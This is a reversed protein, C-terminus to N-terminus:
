NSIKHQLKKFYIRFIASSIKKKSLDELVKDNLNVGLDLLIRNWTSDNSLAWLINKKEKFSLHSNKGFLTRIGHSLMYYSYNSIQIESFINKGYENELFDILTHLKSFYNVDFSKTMSTPIQRYHYLSDDILVVRKSRYIAPFVGAVDEGMNVYSPVKMVFEYLVDRRFLKNWYVPYIGFEFPGNGPFIQQWLELNVDYMGPKIKNKKSLGGNPYDATFNCIAIDSSSETLACYLRELYDASIWDDSDVFAVYEGDAKEIGTKRTQVLGKNVQHIVRIKSDSKAYDDCIISSGDTSGDDILLVEFDHFSQDLVSQICKGLYEKTNYVPVIVSIM